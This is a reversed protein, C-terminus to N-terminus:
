KKTAAVHFTPTVAVGTSVGPDLTVASWTIASLEAVLLAATELLMEVYMTSYLTVTAPVPAALVIVIELKVFKAAPVASMKIECIGPPSSAGRAGTLSSRIATSSSCTARRM